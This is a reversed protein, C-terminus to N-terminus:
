KRMLENGKIYEWAAIRPNEAPGSIGSSLELKFSINSSLISESSILRPPTNPSVPIAIMDAMM